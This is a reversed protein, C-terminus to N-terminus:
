SRDETKRRRRVIALIGALVAAAAALGAFPALLMFDGTQVAGKGDDAARGDAGNDVNVNVNQNNNNNNGSPDETGPGVVQGNEDVWKAYLTIAGSSAEPIETIQTAFSEDMFWGGFTYGERTPDLLKVATGQTYTSPNGPNNVGGNLEYTIDFEAPEEIGGGDAVIDIGFVAYTNSFTTNDDAISGDANAKMGYLFRFSEQSSYGNYGEAEAPNSAGASIVGENWSWALIPTVEQKGEALLQPLVDAYKGGTKWASKDASLVEYITQGDLEDYRTTNDWAKPYYYRTPEMLDEYTLTGSFVYGDEVTDANGNADLSDNTRLKLTMGPGFDVNAAELVDTLLVGESNYSRLGAMGCNASTNYHEQVDLDRLEDATLTVTKQVEGDADLIRVVLDKAGINRYTVAGSVESFGDSVINVQATAKENQTTDFLAIPLTLKATGSSTATLEYYDLKGADDVANTLEDKWESFAKGTLQKGDVTVSTIGDIWAQVMEQATADPHAQQYAALADDSPTLTFDVKGAPVYGMETSVYEPDTPFSMGLDVTQSNAIWKAYLTTNASITGTAFDFQEGWDGDASGDKTWWGGFTYGERTPDDPAVLADAPEATEGPEYAGKEVDIGKVWYKSNITTNETSTMPAVKVTQSAVDTGDGTDFSVTASDVLAIGFFFRFQNELSVLDDIETNEETPVATTGVNDGSLLTETYHDSIMPVAVSGDELAKKALIQRLEISGGTAADGEAASVRDYVEKVEPDDYASQMFYRTQGFLEDYTFTKNFDDTCEFTITDGPALEIGCEELLDTVPVGMGSFTRFGTMGCQSSGNQFEYSEENRLDESTIIKAIEGNVKLDLTESYLTGADITGVTDAFGDASISIQYRKANPYTTSGWMGPIDLGKGDITDGAKPNIVPNDGTRHITLTGAGTDITYQSAELEIPEEAQGDNGYPTVTVKTVAKAWGEPLDSLDISVDRGAGDTARLGFKQDAVITAGAPAPEVEDPQWALIPHETGQKFASGLAAAMAAAKMENATKAVPATTPQFNGGVVIACSSDLYYVNDTELGVQASSVLAAAHGDTAASVTGYNFSSAMKVAAGQLQGIVGGAYAGAGAAEVAGSNYCNSFSKDFNGQVMGVIGGAFSTAGGNATIDGANYCSDVEAAKSLKGAIGGTGYTGTVKGENACKVISHFDGSMVNAAIGGVYKSSGTTTITAKNVCSILTVGDGAMTTYIIGGFNGNGSLSVNNVCNEVTAGYATNIFGGVNNSGSYAGSLTLNKIVAGDAVGVLAARTANSFATINSITYGSGDITGSFREGSATSTAITPLVGDDLTIDATLKANADYDGGNVLDAFWQLDAASDLQYCGDVLAPESPDAAATPDTVKVTYTKEAPFWFQLDSKENAKVTVKTEGAAKAEITLMADNTTGVKSGAIDESAKPDSVTAVGEESSIATLDATRLTATPVCVCGKGKEFCAMSHESECSAPCEPRGCGEYQMHQYPSVKVTATQGVELEIVDASAGDATIEITGHNYEDTATGYAEAASAQTAPFAPIMLGVCLLIAMAARFARAPLAMSEAFDSM